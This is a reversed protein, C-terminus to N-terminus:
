NPLAIELVQQFVRILLSLYVGTKAERTGRTPWSAPENEWTRRAIEGARKNSVFLRALESAEPHVFVLFERTPM